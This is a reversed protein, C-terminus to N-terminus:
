AVWKRVQRTQTQPQLKMIDDVITVSKNKEEDSM